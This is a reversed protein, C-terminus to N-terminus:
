LIREALDFFNSGDPLLEKSKTKDIRWGRSPTVTGDHAIHSGSEILERKQWDTLWPMLQKGVSAFYAYEGDMLRQLRSTAVLREAIHNLWPFKNEYIAEGVSDEDPQMKMPDADQIEFLYGFPEKDAFGKPLEHGLVDGGLSYIIGYRLSPTLYVKGSMPRMFTNARGSLNPPVLGNRLIDEAASRVSTGHYLVNTDYAPSRSAFISKTGYPFLNHVSNTAIVHYPVNQFINGASSVEITFTKNDFDDEYDAGYAEYLGDAIQQLDNNTLTNTEIRDGAIRKWGLHRMGYGRADVQGVKGDAILREERTMGLKDLEPEYFFENEEPNYGQWKDRLENRLEDSEAAAMRREYNRRALEGKFGDWDVFEGHDYAPEAYQRRVYDIVYMEHNMDGIDGDAYMAQGDIVWWEGQQAKKYWSRQRAVPQM